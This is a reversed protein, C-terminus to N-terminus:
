DIVALHVGQDSPRDPPLEAASAITGHFTAVAVAAVAVAVAAFGRKTSATSM